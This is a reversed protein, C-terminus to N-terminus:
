RVPCIGINLPIVGKAVLWAALFGLIFSVIIWTAPHMIIAKKNM